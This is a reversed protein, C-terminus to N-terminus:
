EDPQVAAREGPHQRHLPLGLGRLDPRVPVDRFLSLFSYPKAEDFRNSRNPVLWISVLALQQSQFLVVFVFLRSFFFVNEQSNLENCLLSLYVFLVPLALLTLHWTWPTRVHPGSQKM